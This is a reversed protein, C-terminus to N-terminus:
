RGLRLADPPVSRIPPTEYARTREHHLAAASRLMRVGVEPMILSASNWANIATDRTWLTGYDPGALIVPMPREMLRDKFLAANGLLDGM